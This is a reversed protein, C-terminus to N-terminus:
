EFACDIKGASAWRRMANVIQEMADAPDLLDGVIDISCRESLKILGGKEKAGDGLLGVSRSDLNRLAEELVQRDVSAKRGRKSKFRVRFVGELWGQPPISDELERIQEPGWGLVELVDLVTSGEGRDSAADDAVEGGEASPRSLRPSVDIESVKEVSGELKANLIVTAGPELEGADQLLRTLYRELTRGRTRQGEIIGVHNGAVAFYLVGEVIQTRQEFTLNQLEFEAIDDDLTGNIGPLQAGSKVHILQGCFVPGCWTGPDSLKNLLVFSGDQDLDKKRLRALASLTVDGDRPVRGLIDVIMDKLNFTDWLEDLKVYRYQIAAVKKAM